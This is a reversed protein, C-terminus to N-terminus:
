WVVGAIDVAPEVPVAPPSPSLNAILSLGEVTALVVPSSFGSRVELVRGREGPLVPAESDERAAEEVFVAVAKAPMAIVGILDAGLLALVTM